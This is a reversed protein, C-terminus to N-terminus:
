SYKIKKHHNKPLERYHKSNKSHTNCHCTPCLVRANKIDWFDPCVLAQIYQTIGHDIIIQSFPYIHDVHAIPYPSNDKRHQRLQANCHSCFLGYAKIIDIRWNYYNETSRIQDNLSKEKNIYFYKSYQTLGSILDINNATKHLSKTPM